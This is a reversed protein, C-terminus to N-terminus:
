AERKADHCFAKEAVCSGFLDAATRIRLDYGMTQTCPHLSRQHRIM